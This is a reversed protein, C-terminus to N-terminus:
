AGTDRLPWGPFIAQCGCKANGLRGEVFKSMDSAHELVLASDESIGVGVSDRGESTLNREQFIPRGMSLTTLTFILMNSNGSQFHHVLMQYSSAVQDLDLLNEIRRSSGGDSSETSSLSAPKSHCIVTVDATEKDEVQNPVPPTPSLYREGALGRENWSSRISHFHDFVPLLEKRRIEVESSSFKEIESEGGASFSTRACSVTYFCIKSKQWIPLRGFNVQVEANSLYRQFREQPDGSSSKVMEKNILPIAAHIGEKQGNQGEVYTGGNFLKLKSESNMRRCLLSTSQNRSGSDSTESGVSPLLEHQVVHGSPTYVWYINWPNAKSNVLKSLVVPAPPPLSQQHSISSPTSWWPLSYVPFYPPNKAKLVLLESVPMVELPHCFLFIVLARPYVIAIWQSFHSFCIDRFLILVAGTQLGPVGSGKHTCSPMIGSSILTIGMSQDLSWFPEVLTLVYHWIYVLILKLNTIHCRQFCFGNVVVCEANDMDIGTVRRSERWQKLLQHVLERSARPTQPSLCGLNSPLPNNSAYALWRPGVAMPGYGVNVGTTGQGALVAYKHPSSRYSGIRSCRKRFQEFPTSNQNINSPDDGSVVLLLPHSKRFGEQGDCGIPFPQMQLFSVPGDRKSVLESFRSADEVDLVQFGNLYGLLLVHKFVSPNIELMDFGAWTVQDKHDESASSISAAVSAGASRVTSAVTNANTSVTKLCLSIIRLSNPLLGNNKGKGKKM